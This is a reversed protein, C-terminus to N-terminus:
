LSDEDMKSIYIACELAKDYVDSLTMMRSVELMINQLVIGYLVPWEDPKSCYKATMNDYIGEWCARVEKYAVAPSVSDWIRYEKNATVNVEKKVIEMPDPKTFFKGATEFFGDCWSLVSYKGDLLYKNVSDGMYFKRGDTATVLNYPQKNAMVAQHCAYGAMGASLMLVKKNDLGFPGSFREKLMEAINVANGAIRKIDDETLTATYDPVSKSTVTKSLDDKPETAVPTKATENKTTKEIADTKIQTEALQVKALEEAARAKVSEDTAVAKATTEAAEAKSSEEAAKNNAIAGLLTALRTHEETAQNINTQESDKSKILGDTTLAKVSEETVPTKITAANADNKITEERTEIKTAENKNIEELAENIDEKFEEIGEQGSLVFFSENYVLTGDPKAEIAMIDKLHNIADKYPNIDEERPIVKLIDQARMKRKKVVNIIFKEQPTFDEENFCIANEQIKELRIREKEMSEKAYIDQLIKQEVAEQRLFDERLVLAYRGDEGLKIVGIEELHQLAEKYEYINASRPVRSLIEKPTMPNNLIMKIINEEKPTFRVGEPSAVAYSFNEATIVPANPNKKPANPNRRQTQVSASRGSSVSKGTRKRESDPVPLNKYADSQNSDNVTRVIKVIFTILGFFTLVGIGLGTNRTIVGLLVAVFASILSLVWDIEDFEM